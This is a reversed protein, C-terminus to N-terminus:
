SVVRDELCYRSCFNKVYSSAFVRETMAEDVGWPKVPPGGLRVPTVEASGLAGLEHGAAALARTLKVWEYKGTGPFFYGGRGRKSALYYFSARPSGCARPYLFHVRGHHSYVVRCEASCGIIDVVNEREEQGLGAMFRCKIRDHSAHPIAACDVTATPKYNARDLKRM